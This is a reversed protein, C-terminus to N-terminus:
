MGNKLADTLGPISEILGGEKLKIQLRDYDSSVIDNFINQVANKLDSKVNNIATTVQQDNKMKSFAELLQEDVQTSDLIEQGKDHISSFINQGTNLINDFINEEARILSVLVYFEYYHPM